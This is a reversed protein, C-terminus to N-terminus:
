GPGNELVVMGAGTNSIPVHYHKHVVKVDQQLAGRMVMWMITEIGETGAREMIESNSLGAFWPSDQGYSHIYDIQYPQKILIPQMGKLAGTDKPMPLSYIEQGVETEPLRTPFNKAAM